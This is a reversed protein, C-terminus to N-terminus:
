KVLSIKLPYAYPEGNLAKVGAIIGLIVSVAVVALWPIGFTCFVLVLSVVAAIAWTIQFNLAEVAHARVLPERAGETLLIVLPVVWGFVGGTVLSAGAGGFHAILIMTRATDAGGAGPATFGPGPPYAGGPPPFAAGPPVPGPPPYSSPAGPSVPPPFSPAGPAAPPDAPEAARPATADGFSPDGFSPASPAAPPPAPPEDSPGSPTGGFPASPPLKDPDESM